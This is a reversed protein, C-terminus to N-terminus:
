PERIVTTTAFGQTGVSIAVETQTGSGGTSLPTITASGDMGADIEIVQSVLVPAAPCRGTTPCVGPWATVTQYVNVAAAVVPHGAADVVQVVIPSAIAGGSVTQGGGSVLVM